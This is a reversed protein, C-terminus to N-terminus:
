WEKIIKKWVHKKKSAAQGTSHHTLLLGKQPTKQLSRFLSTWIFVRTFWISGVFWGAALSVLCLQNIAFSHCHDGSFPILSGWGARWTQSQLVSSNDIFDGQKWWTKPGAKVGRDGRETTDAFYPFKILDWNVVLISPFVLKPALVAQKSM